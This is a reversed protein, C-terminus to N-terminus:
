INTTSETRGKKDHKYYNETFRNRIEKSIKSSIGYSSQINHNFGFVNIKKSKDQIELNLIGEYIYGAVRRNNTRPLSISDDLKKNLTIDFVEEFINIVGQGNLVLFGIDSSILIQSLFDSTKKILVGKDAQNMNGWKTSTAYPVIDLHCVEQSPFYYSKQTGSIVYDLKKFWADYPNKQFYNLCDNVILDVHKLNLDRWDKLGLSELTQFRRSHNRLEKGDKDVFELNSPNLGLTAIKAKGINGFVPVPSAWKIVSDITLSRQVRVLEKTINEIRESM